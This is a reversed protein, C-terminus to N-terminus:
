KRPFGHRHRGGIVNRASTTLGQDWVHMGELESVRAELQAVWKDTRQRNDNVEERVESLERRLGDRLAEVSSQVDRIDSKTVSRAEKRLGEVEDGLKALQNEIRKIRDGM